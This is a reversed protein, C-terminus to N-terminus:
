LLCFPDIFCLGVGGGVGSIIFGIVMCCDSSYM